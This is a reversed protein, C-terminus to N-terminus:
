HWRRQCIVHDSLINNNSNSTTNMYASSTNNTNDNITSSIIPIHQSPIYSMQDSLINYPNFSPDDNYAISNDIKHKARVQM